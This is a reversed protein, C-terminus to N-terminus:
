SIDGFGLRIAGAEPQVNEVSGTIPIRVTHLERQDKQLKIAQPLPPPSTRKDNDDTTIDLTKETVLPLEDDNIHSRIVSIWFRLVTFVVGVAFVASGVYRCLVLNENFGVAWRVKADTLQGVITERAPILHGVAMMGAGITMVTLGLVAYMGSCHGRWRIEPEVDYKFDDDQM